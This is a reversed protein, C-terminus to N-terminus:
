GPIVDRGPIDEDTQRRQPQVRVAIGERPLDKEIAEAQFDSIARLSKRTRDAFGEQRRVPAIEVSQPRLNLVIADLGQHM